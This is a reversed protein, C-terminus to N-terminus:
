RRGLMFTARAGVSISVEDSQLVYVLVRGQISLSVVM